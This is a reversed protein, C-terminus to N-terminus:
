EAAVVHMELKLARMVRMITDLSPNGDVSLAKYLSERSLGAEQAVDAMGRSRAVVGLAHAFLAPDNEELAAEIYAAVEADSRLVAASDWLTTKTAM